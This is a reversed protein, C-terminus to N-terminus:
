RALGYQISGSLPLTCLSNFTHISIVVSLDM